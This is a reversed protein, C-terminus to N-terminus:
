EPTFLSLRGGEITSVNGVRGVAERSELDMLTAQDSPTNAVFRRGNADRGIVIGM